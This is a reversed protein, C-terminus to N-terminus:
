IDDKHEQEWKATKVLEDLQEQIKKQRETQDQKMLTTVVEPAIEDKKKQETESSLAEILEPLQRWFFFLADDKESLWNKNQGAWDEFATLIKDEGYQNCFETYKQKNTKTSSIFKGLMGRFRIALTKWNGLPHSGTEEGEKMSEKSLKEERIKQFGGDVQPKGDTYRPNVLSPITPGMHSPHSPCKVVAMRDSRLSQFDEFKTIHLWRDGNNEYFEILPKKNPDSSTSLEDLLSAVKKSTMDERLAMCQGFVIRPDGSFNGNDDVRTLLRYYLTEAAYSITSLKESECINSHLMRKGAM